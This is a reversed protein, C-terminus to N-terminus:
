GELTNIKGKYWVELKHPFQKWKSEDLETKYGKVEVFTDWDKVYFDPQYTSNTGDPKVYDFRKRNREWVVNIRDLHKAAKLEWTGDVKIKGAIPSEYEYKKSRGCTPEWGSAYRSKMNDSVKKRKEALKVPDTPNPKLNKQNTKIKEIVAPCSSTSKSCLYKGNKMEYVAFNGCGYSCLHVKDEILSYSNREYDVFKQEKRNANEKCRREHNKLSNVNKRNSGCYHCIFLEM